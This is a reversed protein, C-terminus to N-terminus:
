KVGVGTVMSRSGLYIESSDIFINEFLVLLDRKVARVRRIRSAQWIGPIAVGVASGVAVGNGVRVAVIVGVGSGVSVGVGEAVGVGVTRARRTTIRDM